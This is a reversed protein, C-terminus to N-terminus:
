IIIFQENRFFYFYESLSIAMLITPIGFALPYCNTGYCHVNATIFRILFTVFCAHFQEFQKCLLEINQGYCVSLFVSLCTKCVLAFAQAFM